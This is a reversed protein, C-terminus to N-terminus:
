VMGRVINGTDKAQGVYFKNGNEPTQVKIINCEIKM